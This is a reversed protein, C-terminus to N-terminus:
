EAAAMWKSEVIREWGKPDEIAKRSANLYAQTEVGILEGFSWCKPTIITKNDTQNSMTHRKGIEGLWTLRM